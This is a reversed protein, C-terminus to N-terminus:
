EGSDCYFSFFEVLPFLIGENHFTIPWLELLYLIVNFIYGSELLIKSGM